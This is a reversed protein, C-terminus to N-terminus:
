IKAVCGAQLNMFQLSKGALYGEPPPSPGRVLIRFVECGWYPWSRSVSWEHFVKSEGCSKEEGGERVGLLGRGVGDVEVAVDEGAGMEAGVIGGGGWRFDLGEGDGVSLDEGGAGVGCDELEFARLSFDDVQVTGERHGAKVVGVGVHGGGTLLLEGDVEVSDFGQGLHLLADADVGGLGFGAGPELAAAPVV